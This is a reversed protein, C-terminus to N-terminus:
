PRLSQRLCSLAVVQKQQMEIDSNTQYFQKCSFSINSVSIEYTNMREKERERKRERERERRCFGKFFRHEQVSIHCALV